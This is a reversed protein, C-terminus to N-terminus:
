GGRRPVPHAGRACLAHVQLLVARLLCLVCRLCLAGCRLDVHDTTLDLHTTWKLSRRALDFAVLGSAVYMTSDLGPPLEGRHEETDYYARDFFYSVPLVIEDSGDGDIDGIAGNCMIHADLVVAKATGGSGTTAAFRKRAFEDDGWGEAGAAFTLTASRPRPRTCRARAMRWLLSRVSDTTDLIKRLVIELAAM